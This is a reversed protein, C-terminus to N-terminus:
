ELANEFDKEGAFSITTDHREFWQTLEDRAAKRDDFDDAEDMAIRYRALAECLGRVSLISRPNLEPQPEEIGILDSPWVPVAYAELLPLDRTKGLFKSLGVLKADDITKARTKGTVIGDHFRLVYVYLAGEDDNM